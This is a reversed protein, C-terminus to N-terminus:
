LKRPGSLSNREQKVLTVAGQSDQPVSPLPLYAPIRGPAGPAKDRCHHRAAGLARPTGTAASSGPLHLHHRSRLSPHGPTSPRPPPRRHQGSAAGPSGQGQFSVEMGPSELRRGKPSIGRKGQQLKDSEKHSPGQAVAWCMGSSPM